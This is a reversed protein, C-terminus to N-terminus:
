RISLGSSTSPSRARRSSTTRCTCESSPTFPFVCGGETIAILPLIIFDKSYTLRGETYPEVVVDDPIQYKRRFEDWVGPAGSVYHAYPSIQTGPPLPPIVDPDTPDRRRPARRDTASTSPPNASTSSVRAAPVSEGAEPVGPATASSGHEGPNEGHEDREALGNCDSPRRVLFTGSEGQASPASIRIRHALAAIREADRPVVVGNSDTETRSSSSEAM